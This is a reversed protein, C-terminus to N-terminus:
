HVKVGRARWQTEREILSQIFTHFQMSALALNSSAIICNFEPVLIGNRRSYNKVLVNGNGLDEQTTETVYYTSVGTMRSPTSHFGM